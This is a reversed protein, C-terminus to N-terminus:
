QSLDPPLQSTIRPTNAVSETINTEVARNAGRDIVEGVRVLGNELHQTAQIDVNGGAQIVANSVVSGSTEVVKSSRLSGLAFSSLPMVGPDYSSSQPDNYSNYKRMNSIFRHYYSDYKTYIYYRYERESGGAAGTNWLNDAAIIIDGGSSVSSFRNDFSSGVFDLSGGSSLSSSASDQTVGVGYVENVRYDVECHKNDCYDDYIITVKGSVLKYDFEFVDKRNILENVSLRMDGMSEVTGSINEFLNARQEQSDKALEIGGLSYVDAYRNVFTDVYLGMDEGSFILGNENLLNPAYLALTGSGGLTGHNNLTAARLQLDGASTLRGHNELLTSASVRTLGGGSIRAAEPLELTAAALTLDGLSSLQGTGGYRGSLELSLTGDSALLGDNSWNGGKGLLSDRALLQGTAGQSFTGIDLTLRGAQLVNDNHWTDASLTLGGLSIIEGGGEALRALDLAFEGSGAHRLAGGQNGLSGIALALGHNASELVGARNDFLGAVTLRTEGSTGLARLQGGQNDLSASRIALSGASELLGQANRLAGRLGFDIGAAGVVGGRNDLSGASLTLAGQAYLTGAQNDVDAAALSADGGWAEIRGHANGLNGSAN